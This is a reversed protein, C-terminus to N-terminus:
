APPTPLPANLPWGPTDPWDRLAQRYAQWQAYVGDGLRSKASLTDTWDCAALLEDRRLRAANTTYEQDIIWDQGGWVWERGPRPLRSKLAGDKVYHHTSGAPVDAEMSALDDTEFALDQPSANHRFGVIDGTRKHYIIVNM